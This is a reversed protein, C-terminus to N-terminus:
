GRGQKRHKFHRLGHRESDFYLRQEENLLSRVQQRTNERNKMLQTQLAGIDEVVKYIENMDAEEATRLTNLRARKEKMENRVPLTEKQAEIRVKKIEERQEDTLGPINFARAEGDGSGRHSRWHKGPRDRRENEQENQAMANLGATGLLLSLALAMYKLKQTKM